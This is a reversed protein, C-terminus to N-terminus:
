CLDGAGTESAVDVIRQAPIGEYLTYTFQNFSSLFNITAVCLLLFTGIERHKQGFRQLLYFHGTVTTFRILM